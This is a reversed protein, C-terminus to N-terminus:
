SKEQPTGRTLALAQLASIVREVRGTLGIGAADCRSLGLTVVGSNRSM